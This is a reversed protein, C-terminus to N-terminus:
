ISIRFTPRKLVSFVWLTSCHKSCFICCWSWSPMNWKLCAECPIRQICILLTEVSELELTIVRVEELIGSVEFGDLIEERLLNSRHGINAERVMYMTEYTYVSEKRGAIVSPVGTERVLLAKVMTFKCLQLLCSCFSFNKQVNICSVLFSSVSVSWQKTSYQSGSFNQIMFWSYCSFWCLWSFTVVSLSFVIVM